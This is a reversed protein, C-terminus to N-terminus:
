FLGFLAHALALLIGTIALAGGVLMLTGGSRPVESDAPGRLLVQGVSYAVTGFVVLVIVVWWVVDVGAM